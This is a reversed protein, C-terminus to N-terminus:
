QNSTFLFHSSYQIIILIYRRCTTPHQLYTSYLRHLVLSHCLLLHNTLHLQCCLFSKFNVIYKKCNSQNKNSSFNRNIPAIM